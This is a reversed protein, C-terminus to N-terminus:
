LLELKKKFMQTEFQEKTYGKGNLYYHVQNIHKDQKYFIQAPGNERHMQNNLCYSEMGITGNKYYAVFAPGDERHLKGKLYYSEHQRIGDNSYYVEKYKGNGLNIIKPKEM